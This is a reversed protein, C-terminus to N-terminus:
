ERWRPVAGGPGARPGLPPPASTSAVARDPAACTVRPRARLGPARVYPLRARVRPPLRKPASTRSRALHPAPQAAPVLARPTLLHPSDRRPWAPAPPPHPRVPEWGRGGSWPSQRRPVETNGAPLHLAAGAWKVRRTEM